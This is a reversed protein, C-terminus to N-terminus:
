ISVYILKLKCRQVMWWCKKETCSKDEPLEYGDAIYESLLFLLGTIHTCVEGKRFNVM